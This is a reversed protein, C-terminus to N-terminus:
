DHCSRQFIHDSHVQFAGPQKMGIFLRFSTDAVYIWKNGKKMNERILHNFIVAPSVHAIKQPGSAAHFDENAYHEAEEDDIESDEDSESASETASPVNSKFKPTKDGKPVIGQMSDRFYDDRTTIREGNKAWCLRGQADVKVLYNQREAKSLYRVQESELRQRSRSPLELDKGEGYDLWYFFNQKTPQTKWFNHYARLNSGYRHKKDTLELWYQLDMMKTAPLQQNRAKARDHRQRQKDSIGSSQMGIESGSSDSSSLPPTGAGARRAIAGALHWHAQASSAAKGSGESVAAGDTEHPNTPSTLKQYQADKVAEIWRTSADLGHGQLERRSRYGRYVRQINTAAEAREPADDKASLCDGAPYVTEDTESMNVDSNTAVNRM